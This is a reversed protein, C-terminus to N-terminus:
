SDLSLGLASMRLKLGRRSVGLIEVMADLAGSASRIADVIEDRSLDAAKRVQRSEDIRRYLSSRSVGLSAAALTINQGHESLATLLEEEGIETVARYSTQEPKTVADDSSGSPDRSLSLLGEIAPTLQLEEQELSAVLLRRAVARLQRVNGPWPYGVLRAVIEAPVAPAEYRAVGRQSKNASDLAESLFHFFLRGIDDRRERLPPLKIEYESIRHFLPARFEDSEVAGELDLDTATILRVDVSVQEAAGVPQIQGNDIARLLQVQVDPATEGIEDLFLTGGDARQFYGRRQKDASTFAGRTAGFLESAALNSPVAAANVCVYPQRSRPGAQHLARAVLEKGTGTEGRLLVTFDLEALREIEQRLRLMPSSEGIFGFDGPRSTLPLLSHLLLASSQGLVLVVGGELDVLSFERSRTLSRGDVEVASATASLSARVGGDATASFEVMPRRSVYPDALPRPTGGAPQAFYPEGRSLSERGGAVLGTLSAVEGVRRPDPHCLVTLSPVGIGGIRSRVNPAARTTAELDDRWTQDDEPM